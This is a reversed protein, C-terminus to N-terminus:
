RDVVDSARRERGTDRSGHDDPVDGSVLGSLPATKGVARRFFAGGVDPPLDDPARSLGDRLRTPPSGGSTEAQDM